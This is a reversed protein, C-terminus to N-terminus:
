TSPLYESCWLACQLLMNSTVVSFEFIEWWEKKREMANDGKLEEWLEENKKFAGWMSQQWRVSTKTLDPRPPLPVAPEDQTNKGRMKSNKMIIPIRRQIQPLCPAQASLLGSLCYFDATTVKDAWPWPDNPLRAVSNMESLLPSHSPLTFSLFYSPVSLSTSPALLLNHIQIAVITHIRRTSM